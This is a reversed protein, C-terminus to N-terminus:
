VNAETKSISSNNTSDRQSLGTKFRKRYYHIGMYKFVSFTQLEGGNVRIDTNIGNINVTILKDKEASIEM